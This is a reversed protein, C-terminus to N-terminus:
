PLLFIERAGALFRVGIGQDGCGIAIGASSDMIIIICGSLGTLISAGTETIRGLDSQKKNVEPPFKM